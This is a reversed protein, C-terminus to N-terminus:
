FIFRLCFCSFTILALQRLESSMSSPANLYLDWSLLPNLIWVLLLVVLFIVTIVAYSTSIYIRALHFKESAVAEALKNRLGNGLGIDFFSFWGIIAALTLWIGYLSKDLYNITLPVLALQTLINIGKYFFSLFINKTVLTSREHGDFLQSEIRKPILLRRIGKILMRKIKFIKASHSYDWIIM